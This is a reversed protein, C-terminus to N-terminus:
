VLTMSPLVPSPLLLHENVLLHGDGTKADMVNTYCIQDPVTLEMFIACSQRQFM